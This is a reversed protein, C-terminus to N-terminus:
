RKSGAKVKGSERRMTRPVLDLEPMVEREYFEFFGKQDPGIQHVYVHDFGADQFKRIEKLHRAPDPGCVVQEAIDEERVMKAAQEFHAPTRLEATLEGSVGANPWYELATKLARAEDKAWCVAVEGFKPKGKGGHQEFKAVTEKNPATAILGDGIQGALQAM